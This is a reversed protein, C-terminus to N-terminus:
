MREYCKVNSIIYNCGIEGNKYEIHHLVTFDKGDGIDVSIDYRDEM